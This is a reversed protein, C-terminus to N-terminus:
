KDGKFKELAQRITRVERYVEAPLGHATLREAARAIEVLLRVDYADTMGLNAYEHIEDLLPLEMKPLIYQPHRYLGLVVNGAEIGFAGWHLLYSVQFELERGSYAGNNPNWDRIRLTDGVQFNRDNKRVEFTKEGTLLADFYQPWAKLEHTQVSEGVRINSPTPEVPHLEYKCRYDYGMAKCVGTDDDEAMVLDVQRVSGLTVIRGYEIDGVSEHWHEGLSEDIASQAAARAEEESDHPLIGFEPHISYWGNGLAM